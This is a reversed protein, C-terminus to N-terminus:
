GKKYAHMQTAVEQHRLLRPVSAFPAMNIKRHLTGPLRCLIWYFGRRSAATAIWM